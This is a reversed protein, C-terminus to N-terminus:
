IIEYNLEFSMGDKSAKILKVKTYDKFKGDTSEVIRSIITEAYGGLFQGFFEGGDGDFLGKFHDIVVSITKQKENLECNLLGWGTSSDYEAWQALKEALNLNEWLRQLKKSAVDNDYIQSLSEAFDVGASRGTDRLLEDLKAKEIASGIGELIGKFTAIRFSINPEEGNYLTGKKDYRFNQENKRLQKELRLRDGSFISALFFYLVIIGSLTYIRGTDKISSLDIALEAPLIDNLEHLGVLVLGLIGAARIWPADEWSDKLFDFLEKLKEWM